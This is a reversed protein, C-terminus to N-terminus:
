VARKAADIRQKLERLRPALARAGEPEGCRLFAQQQSVVRCLEDELERLSAANVKNELRRAREVETDM